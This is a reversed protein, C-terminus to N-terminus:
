EKSKALRVKAILQKKTVANQPDNIYEICADLDHAIVDGGNLKYKSGELILAKCQIADKILIKSKFTPDNVIDLFENPNEEVLANIYDEVLENSTSDSVKKGYVKLVDKKEEVTLSWLKEYAAKALSRKKNKITAEQVVSTIVYSYDPDDFKEGESQAIRPHVKLWALKIRDEPSKPNLILGDRGFKAAKTHDTWYADNYPSLTGPEMRLQKEILKAEDETLGTKFGRTNQDRVPMLWEMCHTYRIEGDHGKPLWGEKVIPKLHVLDEHIEIEGSM